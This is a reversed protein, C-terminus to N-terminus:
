PARITGKTGTPPRRLSTPAPLIRRLRADGPTWSLPSNEAQFVVGLNFLFACDELLDERIQLSEPQVKTAKM